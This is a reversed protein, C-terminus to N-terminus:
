KPKVFLDALQTIHVSAMPQVLLKSNQFVTFEQVHDFQNMNLINVINMLGHFLESPVPMILIGEQQCKQFKQYYVFIQELQYLLEQFNKISIQNQYQYALTSLTELNKFVKILNQFQELAIYLLDQKMMKHWIRLYQHYFVFLKELELLCKLFVQAQQM